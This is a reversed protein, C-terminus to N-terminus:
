RQGHCRLCDHGIPHNRTRPFGGDPGHCVLCDAYGSFTTHEDDAPLLPPQRSRLAVWLVLGGLLALLALLTIQLRSM